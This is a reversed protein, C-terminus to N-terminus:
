TILSAVRLLHRTRTHLYVGCFAAAKGNQQKLVHREFHPEYALLIVGKAEGESAVQLYGVSAPQPPGDAHLPGLGAQDAPPCSHASLSAPSLVQAIGAGCKWPMTPQCACQLAHRM